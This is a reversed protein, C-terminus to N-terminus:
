ATISHNKFSYLPNLTENLSFRKADIPIPSEFKVHLLDKHRYKMNLSLSLLSKFFTMKRTYLVKEESSIHIDDKKFIYSGM